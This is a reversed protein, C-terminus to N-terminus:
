QLVCGLMSAFTITSHDCRSPLNSASTALFARLSIWSMLMLPNAHAFPRRVYREFRVSGDSIYFTCKFHRHCVYQPSHLAFVVNFNSSFLSIASFASILQVFHLQIPRFLLLVVILHVFHLENELSYQSIRNGLSHDHLLKCSQAPNCIIRPLYAFAVVSFLLCSRRVPLPRRLNLADKRFPSGFNAGSCDRSVPVPTGQPRIPCDAASPVIM